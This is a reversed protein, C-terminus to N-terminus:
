QRNLIAKQYINQRLIGVSPAEMEAGTFVAPTGSGSIVELTIQDGDLTYMFHIQSGDIDFSSILKNAFMDMELKISNQEDVIFKGNKKDSVIILYDRVDRRGPEIYRITYGYISDMDTKSIEIEMDISKILAVGRYIDLNGSWLGTYAEPFDIAQAFASPLGISSFLLYLLLNKM